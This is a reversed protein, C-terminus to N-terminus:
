KGEKFLSFLMAISQLIILVMSLPILTKLLYLWPLGGAEQSGERMQWAAQVYDFSSWIIFLCTPWLLLVVGIIDVWRQQRHSLRRYFIDVRVHQDAALTYAAGLMFVTAHLYVSVEQLAIWGLDFFYRLVVVAFTVLVMLLVLWSLLRGTLDSFRNLIRM